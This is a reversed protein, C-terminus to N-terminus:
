VGIKGASADISVVKRRKLIVYLSGYCEGQLCDLDDHEMDILDGMKSSWKGNPLQKAFHSPVGETNEEVYVAVKDFGEEITRDDTEETFGHRYFIKRINPMTWERPIGPPWYYGAHRREPSFFTWNIGLAWALCNYRPSEDSTKRFKGSIERFADVIKQEDEPLKSDM